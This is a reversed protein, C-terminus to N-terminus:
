RRLKGERVVRQVSAARAPEVSKERLMANLNVRNAGLAINKEVAGAGIWGFLIEFREDLRKLFCFGARSEGLVAVRVAKSNEIAVAREHRRIMNQRENEIVEDLRAAPLKADRAADGGRMKEVCDGLMVIHRNEFCRDSKLINTRIKFLILNRQAAFFARAHRNAAVDRLFIPNERAQEDRFHDRSATRRQGVLRLM